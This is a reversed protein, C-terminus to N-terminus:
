FNLSRKRARLGRRSGKNKFPRGAAGGGAFDDRQEGGGFM